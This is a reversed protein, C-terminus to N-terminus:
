SAYPVPDLGLMRSSLKDGALMEVSRCFACLEPGLTPYGCAACVEVTLIGAGGTIDLLCTNM